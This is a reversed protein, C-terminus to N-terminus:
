FLSIFLWNGKSINAITWAAEKQCTFHGKALVDILPRIVNNSILAQIQIANGAAINSVTWAAEKVISRQSHELLKALLPCCGAALVSDTQVATGAVINGIVRLTPTIISVESRDLLRVLSPVLRPVVNADLLEQIRKNPGDTLYALTTCAIALIEKDSHCIFYALAPFLQRM